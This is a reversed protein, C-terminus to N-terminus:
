REARAPGPFLHSAVIWCAFFAAGDLLVHGFEGRALWLYALVYFAVSVLLFYWAALIRM